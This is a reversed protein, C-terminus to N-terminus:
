AYHKSIHMTSMIIEMEKEIIAGDRALVMGEHGWERESYSYFGDAIAVLKVLESNKEEDYDHHYRIVRTFEEPLRWKVSIAQGIEQHDIAFREREITALNKKLAIAEDITKQYGEIGIYFIIKGIDHLLAATFAKQPEDVFTAKSLHRAACAVQISHRWLRYLDEEKLGIKAMVSNMLVLCMIISKVEEIGITIMARKLDLVKIGRGYYASNAISLIKSTIAQDNEISESLQNFSANKNDLIEMVMDIVSGFTPIAKMSAAQNLLTERM